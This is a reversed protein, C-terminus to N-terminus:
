RGQQPLDVTQQLSKGLREPVGIIWNLQFARAGAGNNRESSRQLLQRPKIAAADHHRKVGIREAVSRVLQPM